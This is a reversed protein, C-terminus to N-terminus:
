KLSRIYSVLARVQDSSLHKGKHATSSLSGIGNNIVNTLDADSRGQVTGSRFDPIKNKKGIATNGSADAGHCAVCQSKFIEQGAAVQSATLSAAPAPTM